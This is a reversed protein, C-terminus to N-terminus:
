SRAATSASSRGVAISRRPQLRPRRAPLRQRDAEEQRHRPRADLSRAVRWNDSTYFFRATRPISRSRPSSTSRRGRSSPSRRSRAPRSTSRRWTRSRDPITCRSTRRAASTTSTPARSRGWRPRRSTAIVRHDPERPHFGLNATQFEHEFEIWRQWEEDLPVGYVSKFQSAFHAKSEPRRSTWEILKEPGHTYALYSMFRTGYLYSNVGTQFDITTGESELGVVDYFYADDLVMSRFVMEDYAGLARGIGGDM